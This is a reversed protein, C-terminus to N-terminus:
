HVEARPAGRGSRPTHNSLLIGVVVCGLGFMFWITLREDLLWAGLAAATIPNLPVFVAVRAPTGKELAWVYLFYGFSGGFIGTFAVAGWEALSFVPFGAATARAAALPALFLAGSAMFYVILLRASNRLLYRRSLVNFTAGLCVTIFMFIEGIWTIGEASSLARHGLTLLVGALALMAGAFKLRTLAEVRLVASLALTLLPVMAFVLAARSAPTYQLATTYTFPFVGFQLAGLAFVALADGKKLRLTPALHLLPLLTLAGISNRLFALLLPDAGVAVYRTAVITSGLFVNALTAAVIPRLEVSQTM